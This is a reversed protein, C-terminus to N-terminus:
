VWTAACRWEDGLISPRPREKFHRAESVYKM